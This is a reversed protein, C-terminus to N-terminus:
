PTDVCDISHSGTTGAVCLVPTTYLRPAGCPYVPAFGEEAFLSTFENVALSAADYVNTLTVVDQRAVAISGAPYALFSVTTPLATMFPTAIDGGPFAANLAGGTILGDQWGRVFQVRVNMASFLSAIYSDTVSLLNGTDGSRRSLDTRIQPIVWHPLIIEVTDTWPMMKQYRIDEAALGVAQLLGATFSDGLDPDPGVVTTAAGAAAIIDALILRNMEQENSALLGDSWLNILEPFGAAQLFSVRICLALVDLRRNTFTPCPIESCTKATDAIVQAETLFNSGGGAAVANAYITQFTPEATYNLGGRRVTVTPLDILGIGASWLRCLDYDNESPACWGAAATLSAGQDINHQWQKALSGGHLRAESRAFDLVRRAEANDDTKITLEDGRDRVFQAIAHRAGKGGGVRGYQSTSKILAESIETIGEFAEGVSKGVFGAADNSVFATIKSRAPTRGASVPQVPTQAGLESVSPVVPAAPAAPAEAAREASTSVSTPIVVQPLSVEPLAGFKERQANQAAVADARGTLETSVVDVRSALEALEAIEEPTADAKVALEQGRSRIREYEATLAADDLAKADFPTPTEPTAEEAM